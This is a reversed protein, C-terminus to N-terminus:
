SVETLLDKSLSRSSVNSIYNDEAEPSISSLTSSIVVSSSVFYLAFSILQLSSSAFAALLFSTNALRAYSGIAFRPAM